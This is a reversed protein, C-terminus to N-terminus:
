AFERPQDRCGSLSVLSETTWSPSIPQEPLAFGKARTMHYHHTYGTEV